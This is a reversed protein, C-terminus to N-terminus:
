NFLWLSTRLSRKAGGGDAALRDLTDAWVTMMRRREDIYSARNYAARVKDGPSHALQREIIDGPWGAENLLTSATTRFGHASMRDRPYGMARLAACIANESMPRSRQRGGPFVWGGLESTMPHLERLLAVVQPALPVLHEKRMKMKHAPIRWEARDLDMESWEAKRLEGPRPFCYASMKLACRVIFSGQYGNIARMLAGVDSPRTQAAHHRGRSPALAGRLDASPDREARGTAIAYRFVLSCIGSVRHAVEVAGREEVRRLAALLEPATIEGVPRSGLWPFVDAELRQIVTAAHAPVWAAERKGYWERAVAEFSSGNATAPKMKAKASAREAGPDIGAAIQRRAEDRKKRAEKLTVKPYVGLALLRERGDFYFKLRWYKAGTSAILLYMGGSDFLKKNKDPAPATRRAAIESLM